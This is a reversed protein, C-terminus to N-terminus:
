CVGGFLGHDDQTRSWCRDPLYIPVTRLQLGKDAVEEFLLFQICAHRHIYIYVYLCVSVSVSMCLCIFVSVIRVHIYIYIYIYIYLDLLICPWVDSISQPGKSLDAAALAMNRIFAPNKCLLPVASENPDEYLLGMGELNVLFM